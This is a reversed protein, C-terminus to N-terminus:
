DESITLLRKAYEEIQVIQQQMSTMNSSQQEASASLQEVTAAMEETVSSLSQVDTSIVDSSKELDRSLHDVQNSQGLIEESKAVVKSLMDTASSVAQESSSVALQGQQIQTYAVESKQQILHVIDSISAASEFSSQALKRVEDAVVAFGKGHEGARAAEISANLALLNIQASIANISQLIDEIKQNQSILDDMTTVTVQMTESLSGTQEKVIQMHEKAQDILSNSSEATTRMHEASQALTTVSHNVTHMSDNVESVNEAQQTIGGAMEHFAVSLEKSITTTSTAHKVLEETSQFLTEVTKKIEHNIAEVKTKAKLAEKENHVVGLLMREGIRSQAVLAVAPLLLLLVLTYWESLNPFIALHYREFMFIGLGISILGSLILPRYDHYLSVVALMYYLLLYDTIDPATITLLVILISLDLVVLYKVIGIGWKRWYMLTILGNSVAGYILLVLISKMDTKSVLDGVLGLVLSFWLIQVLLRNRLHLVEANNGM